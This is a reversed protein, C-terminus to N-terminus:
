GGRAAAPRIRLACVVVLWGLCGILSLREVVGTFRGHGVALLGVAMATLVPITPVAFWRSTARVVPDVARAAAAVMALACLGVAAISAGAHILDGATPRQFPPLPCGASCRAASSVLLCPVALALFFAALSAAPRLALAAAGAAIVFFLLSIRYLLAHPAGAVGSESVYGDLGPGGRTALALGLSALLSTGVAIAAWVRGMGFITRM